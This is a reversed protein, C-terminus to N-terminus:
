KKSLKRLIKIKSREVALHNNPINETIVSGAGITSNRGIILPAVLSSNSGVFVNDEITTKNKKKGNYNCTITGAGINVNKGIKSDGIYSLHSISTNNDISSNKIEVFNGIKVNQGIISNPRVRASPGILSNKNIICEELVSHSKIMVNEKILVGKKIVVNSEIISGKKIITDYSVQTTEPQKFIVGGKIIKTKIKNQFIKDLKILDDITNIGMMEEESALIYNFNKGVNHFLLFIDPLYKEKKINKNKIKHINEFLLKSNCMMVGSNCLNIKKEDKSANLEEVVSHINKEKILVRGYGHPNSTKFAIMSGISKNNYFNKILKRISTVTILPVDGFLVLINTNQLYKKASSIADATGKQERQLLFIANPFRKKLEVINDKNCVFVINKFSIKKAVLYVHDIITIGGLDQFIKSKSHKFRSSKGAALIVTTIKKMM